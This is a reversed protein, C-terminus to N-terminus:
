RRHRGSQNDAPQELDYTGGPTETPPMPDGKNVTVQKKAGGRPGKERYLGSHPAAQGPKLSKHQNSMHEFIAM